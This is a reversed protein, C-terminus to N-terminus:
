PEFGHAFIVDSPSMIVQVGDFTEGEAFPGLTLPAVSQTELFQGNAGLTIPDGGAEVLVKFQGNVPNSFSTANTSTQIIVFGVPEGSGALTVSGTVNAAQSRPFCDDTVQCEPFPPAPGRDQLEIRYSRDEGRAGFCDRVVVYVSSAVAGTRGVLNIPAVPSGVPPPPRTGCPNREILPVNVCGLTPLPVLCYDGADFVRVNLTLEPLNRGPPVLEEIEIINPEGQFVDLVYWDQDVSSHFWHIQEVGDLLPTFEGHFPGRDREFPDLPIGRGANASLTVAVLVLVLLRAQSM